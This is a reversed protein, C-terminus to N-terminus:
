ALTEFSFQPPWSDNGTPHEVLFESYSASSVGGVVLSERFFHGGIFKARRPVCGGEVVYKSPFFIRLGRGVENKNDHRPYKGNRMLRKSKSKIGELQINYLSVV